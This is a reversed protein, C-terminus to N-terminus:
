PLLQVSGSVTVGVLGKGAEVPVPADAAMVAMEARRFMPRPQPASEGGQLRVEGLAYGSFGFARATDAAKQRFAAIAQASAEAEHRRATDRAISPSVGIVNLGVLKGATQAIRASDRGELVLEAQGQWGSIRGDKGYRPSLNFGGTRVILAEGEAAARATKLAADLAQKLAAQVQAADSGERVAQLTLTLWDQAVELQAEAQLHVVNRPAAAEAHAPGSLSAVLALGLLLPPVSRLARSTM